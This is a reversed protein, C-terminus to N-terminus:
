QIFTIKLLAFWNICFIIRESAALNTFFFMAEITLIQKKPM